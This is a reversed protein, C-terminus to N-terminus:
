GVVAYIDDERVILLDKGDAKIENGGYQSYIVKDGVKVAVPVTKGDETTKGAGVAIVKGEARKEKATDPLVIGGATIEEAAFPEILVRDGLPKIKM